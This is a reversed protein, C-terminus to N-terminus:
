VNNRDKRWYEPKVEVNWHKKLQLTAFELNQTKRQTNM